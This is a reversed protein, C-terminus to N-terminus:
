TKGIFSETTERSPSICSHPAAIQSSGLGPPSGLETLAVRGDAGRPTNPASVTDNTEERNNWKVIRRILVGRRHTKRRTSVNLQNALHKKKKNDM